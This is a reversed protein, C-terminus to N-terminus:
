APRAPRHLHLAAITVPRDADVLRPGVGNGRHWGGTLLWDHNGRSLCLLWPLPKRFGPRPRVHREELVHILAGGAVYQLEIWQYRLWRRVILRLNHAGKDHFLYLLQDCLIRAQDVFGYSGSVSVLDLGCPIKQTGGAIVQNKGLSWGRGCVPYLLPCLNGFPQQPSFIALYAM